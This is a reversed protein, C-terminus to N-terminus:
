DDAADSTYLLCALPSNYPKYTTGEKCLLSCFFNYLLFYSNNRRLMDPIKQICYQLIPIAPLLIIIVNEATGYFVRGNKLKEAGSISAKSVLSTSTCESVTRLADSHKFFSKFHESQKDISCRLIKICRM